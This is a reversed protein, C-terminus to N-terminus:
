TTNRNKGNAFLAVLSCAVQGRWLICFLSPCIQRLFEPFDGLVRESSSLPGFYVLTLMTGDEQAM